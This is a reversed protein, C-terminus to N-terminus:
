SLVCMNVSYITHVSKIKMRLFIKAFLTLNFKYFYFLGGFKKM